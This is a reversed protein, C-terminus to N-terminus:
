GNWLSDDLLTKNRTLGSNPVLQKFMLELDQLAENDSTEESHALRRRPPPPLILDTAGLEQLVHPIDGTDGVKMNSSDLHGVSQKILHVVIPKLNPDLIAMRPTAGKLCEMPTDPFFEMSEQVSEIAPAVAGQHDHINPVYTAQVPLPEVWDELSGPVLGQPDSDMPRSLEVVPETARDESLFECM